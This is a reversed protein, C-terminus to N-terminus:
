PQKCSRNSKKFCSIFSASLTVPSNMTITCTGTGSCAGSWGAFYSNKNPTAALTVQAGANYTESCVSGCNIGVPLSTITGTGTGSKSVTIDYIKQAFTAHITHDATVNSFTYATVAGTSAGDVVIDAVSYGSNPTISFTKASGYNITFSGAPSISGGSESTATISYTKLTFAASITKVSNM